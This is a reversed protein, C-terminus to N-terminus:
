KRGRVMDIHPIGYDEYPESDTEFGMNRYYAELQLQASIRIEEPGITDFVIAMLQKGLGGGRLDPRTVIRGLVVAEGEPYWRAYAALRSELYGLLHTSRPDKGDIEPYACDQEVVFVETRLRLLDHLERTSLEDFTRVVFELRAGLPSEAADAEPPPSRDKSRRRRRM